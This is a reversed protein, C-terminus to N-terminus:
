KAKDFYYCQTGQYIEILYKNIINKTNFKNLKIQLNISM